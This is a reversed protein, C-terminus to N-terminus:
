GEEVATPVQALAKYVTHRACHLTQAITTIPIGSAAMQCALQQQDPALKPRRGGKRGRARAATLGAVVRDRILEREFQAFAGLMNFLLRGESTATDLHAFPGELVKLEIQRERLEEALELLHRLSRALRDLRWVVLTDGPQLYAWCALFGPRDTRVGSAQDQYLHRAEVGAARL